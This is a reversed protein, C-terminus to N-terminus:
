ENKIESITELILEHDGCCPYRKNYKRGKEDIIHKTTQRIKLKEVVEGFLTRTLVNITHTYRKM